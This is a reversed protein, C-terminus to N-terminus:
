NDDHIRGDEDGEEMEEKEEKEKEEESPDIVKINLGFMENIEDFATKRANFYTRRNYSAMENDKEIEENTLRERKSTNSSEIGLYALAENIMQNKYVQLKDIVYPADLKLVDIGSYKTIDDDGFIFPINGDYNEFLVELLQKQEPTGTIIVPTKQANANVDIIRQITAIRESYLLVDNYIPLHMTNNYILVSNKENLTRRYGNVAYVDRRKPIGYEDFDGLGNVNLCLYKELVEDYFFCMATDEFLGKEMFEINIEKPMDEYNFRIISVEEFRNLWQMKTLYNKRNEQRQMQKKNRRYSM